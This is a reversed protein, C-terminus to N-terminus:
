GWTMELMPQIVKQELSEVDTVEELLIAKLRGKTVGKVNHFEHVVGLTQDNVSKSWADWLVWSPNIEPETDDDKGRLLGFVIIPEIPDLRSNFFFVGVGRADRPEDESIYYRVASFTLWWRPYTLSKSYPSEIGMGRSAHHGNRTMLDDADLLLRATEEYIKIMNGFTDSINQSIESM